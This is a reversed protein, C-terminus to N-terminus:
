NLKTYSYGGNKILSFFSAGLSPLKGVWWEGYKNKGKTKAPVAGQQFVKFIGPPVGEYGYVNGGQFRVLLNGSKPDYQFGYINSSNIPAQEIGNEEGRQGQPMIRNLHAITEALRTPNRLLQNLNQDPFTRLYNIFADEQGGSLIWLLDAGTPIGPAPPAEPNERLAERLQTLRDSAQRLLNAFSLKLEDSFSDLGQSLIFDTMESIGLRISDIQAQSM